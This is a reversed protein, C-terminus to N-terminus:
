KVTSPYQDHKIPKLSKKSSLLSKGKKKNKIKKRTTSRQKNLFYYKLLKHQTLSQFYDDEKAAKGPKIDLNHLLPVSLLKKPVWM